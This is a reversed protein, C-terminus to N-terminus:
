ANVYWEGNQSDHSHQDQNCHYSLLLHEATSINTSSFLGLKINRFGVIFTYFLCRSSPGPPTIRPSCTLCKVHSKSFRQVELIKFSVFAQRQFIAEWVKNIARKIKKFFNIQNEYLWLSIIISRLALNLSLNRWFLTFLFMYFTILSLQPESSNSGKQNILKINKIWDFCWLQGGVLLLFIM